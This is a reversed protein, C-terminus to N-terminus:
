DKRQAPPSKGAPAPAKAFKKLAQDFAEDSDDTGL